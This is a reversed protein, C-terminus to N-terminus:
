AEGGNETFYPFQLEFSLLLFVRDFIAIQVSLEQNWGWALNLASRVAAVLTSRMRRRLDDRVLDSSRENNYLDLTLQRRRRGPRQQHYGPSFM